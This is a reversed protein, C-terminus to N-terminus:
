RSIASRGSSNDNKVVQYNHLRKMVDLVTFKRRVVKQTLKRRNFARMSDIRIFKSNCVVCFDMKIKVIRVEFFLQFNSVSYSFPLLNLMEPPIICQSKIQYSENLQQKNININWTIIYCLFVIQCNHAATIAASLPM